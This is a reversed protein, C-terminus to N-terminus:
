SAAEPQYGFRRFYELDADYVTRPKVGVELREMLSRLEEGDVLQITAVGERSAEARADRTFTGTTIFIGLDTRGAIAGRFDRIERPPVPQQWRKCQFLVRYSILENLELIGRGDIGGDGSRGTVEVDKFGAKHLLAKCLAEFGDPPLAQIIELLDLEEIEVAQLDEQSDGGEAETRRARGRRSSGRSSSRSLALAERLLSDASELGDIRTEWGKQTLRWVGRPASGDLLGLVRLTNRAWAVENEAANEGSALVRNREAPDTVVRDAVRRMVDRAKGEGGMDRLTDLIPGFMRVM